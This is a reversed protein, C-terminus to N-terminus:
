LSVPTNGRQLREMIMIITMRITTHIVTDERVTLTSYCIEYRTGALRRKPQQIRILICTHRTRIIMVTITVTVIRMITPTVTISNMHM